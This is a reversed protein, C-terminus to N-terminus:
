MEVSEVPQFRGDVISLPALLVREDFVLPFAVFHEDAQHAVYVRGEGLAPELELDLDPRRGLAPCRGTRTAPRGRARRRTGSGPQDFPGGGAAGRGHDRALRRDITEHTAIRGDGGLRRRNSGTDSGVRVGADAAVVRTGAAAALLELLAVTRPESMLPRSPSPYPRLM